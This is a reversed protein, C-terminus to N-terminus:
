NSLRPDAGPQTHGNPAPTNSDHRNAAAHLRTVAQQAEALQELAIDAVFQLTEQLEDHRQQLAALRGELRQNQNALEAGRRSAEAELADLRAQGAEIIADAEVRADTLTQEALRDAAETLKRANREAQALLADGAASAEEVLLRAEEVRAAHLKLELAVRRAREFNFEEGKAAEQDSARGLDRELTAVLDEARGVRERIERLDIEVDSRDAEVLSLVGDGTETESHSMTGTGLEEAPGVPANRGVYVSSGVLSVGGVVRYRVTSADSGQTPSPGYGM